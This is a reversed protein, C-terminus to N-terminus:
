AVDASFFFWPWQRNNLTDRVAPTADDLMALMPQFATTVARKIRDAVAQLDLAVTKASQGALRLQQMQILLASKQELLSQIEAESGAPLMGTGIAHQPNFQLDRLRQQIALLSSLRDRETAFLWQSASAVAFPPPEVNWWSRILQSTFRDYNGGGLGHVFLDSFLMRLTASILAGRPVLLEDASLNPAIREATSWAIHRSSTARNVIWFPLECSGGHVQLNPFPNAANRIQEQERFQDLAQNYAVAFKLPATLIGTWLKQVDPLSCIDSLTVELMRRGIGAARRLIVSADAMSGPTLKAFDAAAARFTTAASHAGCADLSAVVESAMQQLEDHPRMRGSRYLGSGNGFTARATNAVPWPQTAAERNTAPVPYQFEGADGEDTDIIVAVAILGREKAFSETVRYKFCLGPHFVVPQHGTMIIPLTNPDGDLLEDCPVALGAETARNNLSQCYSRCCDLLQRRASNRLSSLHESEFSVRVAPWASLPPELIPDHVVDHRGASTTLPETM